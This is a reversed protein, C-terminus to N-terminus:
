IHVRDYFDKKSKITDFYKYFFILVIIIKKCTRKILRSGLQNFNGRPVFDFSNDFV